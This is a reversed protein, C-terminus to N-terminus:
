RRVRALVRRHPSHIANFDNIFEGHHEIIFADPM